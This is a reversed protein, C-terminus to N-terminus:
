LFIGWYVSIFDNATFDILREYDEKKMEDLRSNDAERLSDLYEKRYKNKIIIPPYNNKLLIHNMLMRGTRGNGDMFPHIKEFKHHFGVALVFPHLRKKNKKYWDLLMDMDTKVYPAPTSKFRAKLVKIDRTRYGTRRDIGAMLKKHIDKIYRHSMKKGSELINFFVEKQNQLDYVERLTKNKPTKGEEFLNKAEDLTITNGEISTSNFSFEIIFKDLTEKKTLEDEKDFVNNFHLRCAEIGDKKDLLYPDKKLKQEKIKENYYDSELFKHINSYSKRIQDKYQPLNDLEKKVKDISDGLYAIDKSIVRRGKRESIRLYYYAKNGVTKKYIYVM